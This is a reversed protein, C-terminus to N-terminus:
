KVDFQLIFLTKSSILLIIKVSIVYIGPKFIKAMNTSSKRRSYGHGHFIVYVKIGKAMPFMHVM